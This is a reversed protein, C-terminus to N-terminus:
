RKESDLLRKEIYIALDYIFKLNHVPKDGFLNRYLKTGTCSNVATRINRDMNNRSIKLISSVENYIKPRNDLNDHILYLASKVCVYGMLEPSIGIESLTEGVIDAFDIKNKRTLRSKNPKKTSSSIQNLINILVDGNENIPKFKIFDVELEELMNKMSSTKAGTIVFIYPNYDEYNEHIHKIINLGDDNPMIIDLIIVDPAYHQIYLKGERGNLAIAVVKFDPREKIVKALRKSHKVDDDIIVVTKL